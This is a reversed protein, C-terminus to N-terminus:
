ASHTLLHLKLTPMNLQDKHCLHCCLPRNLMEKYKPTNFDLNGKEILMQLFESGNIFFETTFSNWHKKTKLSPSSMDKSIVHLHLQSMSPLAHFGVSFKVAVKKNKNVKAVLDEAKQLMNQVIPVHSLNLEGPNKIHVRPLVLFHYEAKPYKDKIVVLEDDYEVV